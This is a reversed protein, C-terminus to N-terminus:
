CIRPLQEGVLPSIIRKGGFASYMIVKAPHDDTIEGICVANKGKANKQMLAVVDDAIEPDVI